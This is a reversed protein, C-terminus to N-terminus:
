HKVSTVPYQAPHLFAEDELQISSENMKYHKALATNM